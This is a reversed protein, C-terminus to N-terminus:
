RIRRKEDALDVTELLIEALQRSDAELVIILLRGNMKLASWKQNELLVLGNKDAEELYHHNFDAYASTAATAEPYSVLLILAKAHKRQYGALVAETYPTLNLLNEDSLYYHYNLIVHHHLYRISPAQLDEAPLRRLIIPRTGRAKILSDVKEGLLRIAKQAAPTEEESYISIFFRDKWFNIWGPRLRGDQGLQIADGAPDHTFVGYADESTGMDFADLVIAPGGSTTYHRTFCRSMSYANYVEAGGNIYSFLTQPTYFKDNVDKSWAMIQEPLGTQLDELTIAHSEPAM